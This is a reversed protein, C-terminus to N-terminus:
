QVLRAFPDAYVVYALYTADGDLRAKERGTNVAESVNKGERLAQYFAEVFSLAPQDGIMWQAGVFVGAERELFAPAFGGLGTIHRGIKGAQCTNLVVIPRTGDEDRLRCLGSVIEPTLDRLLINADSGAAELEICCDTIEAESAKGHGAFHFLDFPGQVSLLKTVEPRTPPKVPQAAFLNELLLGEQGAKKLDNGRYTPTVYWARGPRVRLHVPAVTGYLWRVLGMQGLFKTEPPLSKDPECVHLIEWPIYPEECFLRIHGIRDRNDWFIRQLKEPFLTQFLKAGISRLQIQLQAFDSKTDAEVQDFLDMYPKLVAIMDSNLEVSECEENVGISDFVLSYRYRRKGSDDSVHTFMTNVRQPINAPPTFQTEAQIQETGDASRESVIQPKLKLTVLLVPGLCFAVWLEGEGPSSAKLDFYLTVPAGPLPAAVDVRPDGVVKFNRKPILRVTIKRDTSAPVVATGQASAAGAMLEIAERSITTVVQEIEGAVVEEPMQAAFHCPPDHSPLPEPGTASPPPSYAEQSAPEAPTQATPSTTIEESGDSSRGRRSRKKGSRPSLTPATDETDLAPATDESFLRSDGGMPRFAINDTAPSRDQRIKPAKQCPAEALYEVLGIYGIAMGQDTIVAPELGATGERLHKRASNVPLEKTSGSEHLDLAVAIIDNPNKQELLYEIHSRLFLYYFPHNYVIRRIVVVRKPRAQIIALAEGVSLIAPITIFETHIGSPLTQGVLVDHVPLEAIGEKDSKGKKQKIGAAYDDDKMM